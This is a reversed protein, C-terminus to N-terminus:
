KKFGSRVRDINTGSDRPTAGSRELTQGKNNLTRTTGAEAIFCRRSADMKKEGVTYVFQSLYRCRNYRAAITNSQRWIDKKPKLNKCHLHNGNEVYRAVGSLRGETRTLYQWVSGEEDIESGTGSVILTNGQDVKRKDSKVSCSGEPV